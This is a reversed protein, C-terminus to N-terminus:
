IIRGINSGPLQIRREFLLDNGARNQFIISVIWFTPDNTDQTAEIVLIKFFSERDTVSQYQAQQTQVSLYNELYVSVEQIVNARVIDANYVKSGVLKHIRTGIWTHFANSGLETLVGKKVEQLLKEENAVTNIKGLNSFSEDNHVKLGFCKPCYQLPVSYSIEYFDDLSRRKKNFVIKTKQGLFSSDDKELNWKHTNNTKVINFGNIFLTIDSSSIIRPMRITKLDSDIQVVEQHVMHDCISFIKFDISM